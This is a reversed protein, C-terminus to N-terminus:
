NGARLTILNIEPTNFLRFKLLPVYGGAGMGRSVYQQMGAGRYLGSVVRQDPFFGHRAESPSPVFIAGVGPIRIQGGHYHGAVVLDFPLTRRNADDLLSQPLPYHTIGILTDSGSIGAYLGALETHYTMQDNLYARRHPNTTVALKEQADQIFGQPLRGDFVESFWLRAGGREVPVPHDLLTLGEARLQRGADDIYGTNLDVDDPGSNGAVFFMLPKRQIGHVLDLFPLLDGDRDQMDGTFAIVDYELGNVAQTLQAEHEGFLVSHLDSVQLITYGDFQPPLNEITVDQRTVTFRANDYQSYYALGTILVFAALFTLIYKRM